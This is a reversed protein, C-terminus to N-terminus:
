FSFQLMKIADVFWPYFWIILISVMPLIFLLTMYLPKRKIKRQRDLQSLKKLQDLHQRLFAATFRKDHDVAQKLSNCIIQFEEDAVEDAMNQIALQPDVHYENLCVTLYPKFFETARLLSQLITYVTATGSELMIGVFTEIVPLEQQMIKRRVRIRWNLFWDPLRYTALAGCIIWVVPIFKIAPSTAGGVAQPQIFGQLNSIQDMIQQSQTPNLIAGSANLRVLYVLFCLGLFVPPLVLRLVHLGKPTLGSNAGGATAIKKMQLRYDESDENPMFKAFYRHEALRELYAVFPHMKRVQSSRRFITRLRARRSKSPLFLGLLILLGGLRFIWVLITTDMM